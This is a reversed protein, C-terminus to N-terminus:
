KQQEQARESARLLRARQRRQYLIIDPHVRGFNNELMNAHDVPQFDPAGGKLAAIDRRIKDTDIEEFLSRFVEELLSDARKKLQRVKGM